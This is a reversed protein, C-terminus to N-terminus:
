DTKKAALSAAQKSSTETASTDAQNTDSDGKRDPRNGLPKGGHKADSEQDKGINVDVTELTPDPKKPVVQKMDTVEEESLINTGLDPLENSVPPRLLVIDGVALGQKIEIHTDNFLGVIVSMPKPKGEELIYVVQEDAVTTVCQLPVAIVDDLKAIIVEARASLGPKYETPLEDDIVVTTSYVKLDPNLWHSQADPLVAVKEVHGKYRKSPDADVVVFAEQGVQIQNMRSEHVKITIKMSSTDPLKILEQKQRITAGEIIQTRNWRRRGTSSAYVVLGAQPAFIKTKTVQETLDELKTKQLELTAKKSELEAEAQAINSSNRALVRKLEEETKTVESELKRIKQPYEYKVLLALKAVSQELELEKRKVSLRDAELETRTAYGKKELQETWTLRDKARTLEAEAITIDSEAKNKEQPWDGDRYRQLDIKAFDLKLEADRRNSENQSRKIELDENARTYDSLASAYSIEQQRHKNLMESSDLEVLLDGQEVITGEPILTIIQSQGQVENVISVEKVAELAGGETLSVLLDQRNATITAYHETTNTTGKLFFWSSGGVLLALVSLIGLIKAM